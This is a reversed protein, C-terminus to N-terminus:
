GMILAMVVKLTKKNLMTSVVLKSKRGSSLYGKAMKQENNANRATLISDVRPNLFRREERLSKRTWRSM